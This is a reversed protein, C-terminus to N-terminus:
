SFIKRNPPPLLLWGHVKATVSYNSSMDTTTNHRDLSCKLKTAM